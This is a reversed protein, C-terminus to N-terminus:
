VSLDYICCIWLHVAALYNCVFIVVVRHPIVIYLYLGLAEIKRSAFYICADTLLDIRHATTMQKTISSFHRLYSWFRELGEGDVRGLGEIRRPNYTVQLVYFSCLLANTHINPCCVFM